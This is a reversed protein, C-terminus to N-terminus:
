SPKVLVTARLEAYRNEVDQKFVTIESVLKAKTEADLNSKMIGEDIKEIDHLTNHKMEETKKLTEVKKKEIDALRGRVDVERKHFEERTKTLKKQLAFVESMDLWGRVYQQTMPSYVKRQAIAFASDKRLEFLEIATKKRFIRMASARAKKTGFTVNDKM